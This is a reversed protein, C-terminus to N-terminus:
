RANIEKTIREAIIRERKNLKLGNLFKASEGISLDCVESITKDNVKVELSEPKM